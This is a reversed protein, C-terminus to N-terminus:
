VYGHVQVVSTSAALAADREANDSIFTIVAGTRTYDLGAKQLLGNWYVQTYQVSQQPGLTITITKGDQSKTFSLEALLPVPVSMQVPVVKTQAKALMSAFLAGLAAMSFVNRRHM